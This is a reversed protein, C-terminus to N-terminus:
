KNAEKIRVELGEEDALRQLARVTIYNGVIMGALFSAFCLVIIVFTSM